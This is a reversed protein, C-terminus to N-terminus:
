CGMGFFGLFTQVDAFNYVGSPSALDASPLGAGFAGLFSQVDAFNLVEYPMAQDAPNCPGGAAPEGNYALPDGLVIWQWSIAPISSWAAEAWTMDGLIFNRVIMENDPVTQAFPEAVSALAFTGGAGIFDAAQEQNFLDTMGGFARGNYSEITNFIAGPAYNFTEAYIRGGEAGGPKGQHNAGLSALLIVPDEIIWIGTTDITSQNPGFAFSGAGNDPDYLVNTNPVSSAALLLDRTIEYDDGRRLVSDNVNDLENNAASDAVGNSFHEDLIFVGEAFNYNIGRGRQAMAQADELTNGDLRCVLMLDGADFEQASGVTAANRWLRGRGGSSFLKPTLRDATSFNTITQTQGWYPNLVYGDALSDGLGGAEGATTNQWLMSLESDVSTYTADGGNYETNANTPNDAVNPNDTDEIRHAFGKTLVLCRITTELGEDALYQRLPDRVRTIFHDYTVTGSTAASVGLTAMDLTRVGPRVGPYGGMGGPVKSSGAYVEATFLSNTKRSDYLVLVQNATIRAAAPAALGAVTSVAALAAALIPTSHAIPM